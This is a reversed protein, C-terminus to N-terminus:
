AASCLMVEAIWVGYPSLWQDPQPWRRGPMFMWPKQLPDRRGHVEWWALLSLSMRSDLENLERPLRRTSGKM